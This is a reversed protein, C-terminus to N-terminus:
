QTIEVYDSPCKPRTANFGQLAPATTGPSSAECIISSIAAQNVSNNYRLNAGYYGKLATDFTTAIITATNDGGSIAYSYNTTTFTNDGRIAGIALLDFTTAFQSREARYATQARNITGVYQQGEAEKARSTQSLFVPLGLAVLIGVIIITVLLEILTFGSDTKKHNLYQLFKAQLEPKM